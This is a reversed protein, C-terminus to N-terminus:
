KARRAGTNVVKELVAPLREMEETRWGKWGPCTVGPRSKQRSKKGPAEKMENKKSPQLM